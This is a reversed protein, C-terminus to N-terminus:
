PSELKVSVPIVKLPKVDADEEAIEACGAFSLKVGPKALERLQPLLATEVIHNLETSLDNFNQSNPFASADLLGTGDRVANGFLLGTPLLIDGTDGGDKLALAVGKKNVSIVHGTGRLFFLTSSSMGLTRGFQTRAKQSDASLATLVQGADAARDLPKLLKENWFATAFNTANFETATQRGQEQKLPVLHFLPFLWCIAALLALTLVISTGRKM